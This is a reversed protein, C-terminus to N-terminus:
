AVSWHRGNSRRPHYRPLKRNTNWSIVRYVTPINPDRQFPGVAADLSDRFAQIDGHSDRHARALVGRFISAPIQREPKKGDKTTSEEVVADIEYGISTKTLHGGQVLAITKGEDAVWSLVVDGRVTHGDAIVSGPVHHGILADPNHNYLLAAGDNLRTLDVSQPRCDLVEVGWWREYPEDSAFSLSITVDSGTEEASAPPMLSVDRTLRM